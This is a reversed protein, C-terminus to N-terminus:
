RGACRALVVEMAPDRGSVYDASSPSAYIDPMMSSLDEAETKFYKTSYTVCIDTNPLHMVKVEGYANPKQGTPEGVLIAHTDRRFEHANLQASSFTGRGIIVFLHGEQNIRPRWRLGRILPGAVMSNGGGNDRMDVVVRDIDGRDVRELVRDAFAGFSDNPDNACENYKVYLLRAAPLESMWYKKGARQMALPPAAGHLERWGVACIPQRPPNVAIEVTRFHGDAFQFTLSAVDRSASLGLAHLVDPLLAYRPLNKRLSAENEYPFVTAIEPIASEIPCDGIRVLRAGLLDAWRVDARTVFLGDTFWYLALPLSALPPLVASPEIRSHGDGIAAVLQMMGVLIQHDALTPVAADLRAARTDFESRPLRAFADKHLRPLDRHLVALDERWLADRDCAGSKPAVSSLTWPKASRTDFACGTLILGLFGVIALRLRPHELTRSHIM